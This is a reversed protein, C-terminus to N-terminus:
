GGALKKAKHAEVRKLWEEKGVGAIAAFADDLELLEGRADEALVEAVEEETLPPMRAAMDALLSQIFEDTYQRM